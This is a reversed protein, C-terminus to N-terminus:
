PMSSTLPEIGRHDVFIHARKARADRERKRARLEDPLACSECEHPPRNSDSRTWWIQLRDKFKVYQM